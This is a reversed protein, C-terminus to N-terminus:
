PKLSAKSWPDDWQERGICVASLGHLVGLSLTEFAVSSDTAKQQSIFTPDVWLVEGERQCYQPELPSDHAKYGM